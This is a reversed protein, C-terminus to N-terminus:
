KILDEVIKYMETYPNAEVTQLKKNNQQQYKELKKSNEIAIDIRDKIESYINCNKEYKPYYKRLRNIVDNNSIIATTYEYHLLFWLEVCPASVIPIINNEKAMKIAIDIQMNKEIKMDTDFICYAKDDELLDLSLDKSKQITQTVLHVPDTENGPVPKIIYDKNRNSFNSFYNKETKNDGEYAVLVVRKSKRNYNNRSRDRSM